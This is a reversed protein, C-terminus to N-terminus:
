SAAVNAGGCNTEVYEAERKFDVVVLSSLLWIFVLRM